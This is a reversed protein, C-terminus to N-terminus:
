LLGYYTLIGNYIGRAFSEPDYTMLSKFVFDNTCRLKYNTPAQPKSRQKKAKILTM